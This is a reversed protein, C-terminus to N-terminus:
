GQSNFLSVVNFTEFRGTDLPSKYMGSHHGTMKDWAGRFDYSMVNIFDLYRYISLIKHEGKTSTLRCYRSVIKVDYADRITSEGASVAASLIYGHVDFEERMEKVLLAFNEKLIKFM